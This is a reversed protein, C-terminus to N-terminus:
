KRSRYIRNYYEAALDLLERSGPKRQTRDIAVPIETVIKAPRPSLVLVRDALLLAEQIDHTVLVTTRPERKWLMSYADILQFRLDMDLSQFPEDMLIMQSPYAFARAVAVRQRMGGSLEAPKFREFPSLGVLEIFEQTRDYRKEPEPLHNKLVLEINEFVTLWPLLRPEQFLYSLSARGTKKSIPVGTITGSTAQEMGSLLHLLTTKGCGSPGLLAIIGGEAIEFSLSDFVELEGAATQYQKSVGNLEIM